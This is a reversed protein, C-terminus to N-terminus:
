RTFREMRAERTPIVEYVVDVTVSTEVVRIRVERVSILDGLWQHLSGVVLSETATTIERATSEFLLRELGVGFDPLMVREGPITFIVQEMMQRIHEDRSALAAAGNVIRLPYAIFVSADDL